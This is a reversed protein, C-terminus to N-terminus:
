GAESPNGTIMCGHDIDADASRDIRGDEKRGRENM